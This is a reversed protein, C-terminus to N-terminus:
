QVFYLQFLWLSLILGLFPIVLTLLSPQNIDLVYVTVDGGRSPSGAPVVVTAHWFFWVAKSSCPNVSVLGQPLNWKNSYPLNWKNTYPLNWKNWKNPYPLNWKDTPLSHIADVECTWDTWAWAIGAWCWKIKVFSQKTYTWSGGRIRNFISSCAHADTRPLMVICVASKLCRFSM